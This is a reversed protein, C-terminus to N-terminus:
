SGKSITTISRIKGNFAKMAAVVKPHQEIKERLDEEALQIKKQELSQASEGLSQERSNAVDFSYGSGWYSDIFGQLKKRVQSDAMQEKLFVLKTPVGLRLCKENEQIFLLNEIKAAFLADAQRLRDVFMLWKESATASQIEGLKEPEAKTEITQQPSNNQIISNKKVGMKDLSAKMAELGSPIEKVQQAEQVKQSSQTLPAHSAYSTKAPSSQVNKVALSEASQISHPTKLQQLLNHIDTLRPASVMRLMVVELVLRPDQAKQIDNASKLAMDFLLHLEEESTLSALQQLVALESDPMELISSINEAAIKVMLLNRITELLNQAFLQPEFGSTATKEIIQVIAKTDRHIIAALTDFLLMHDTLGLIEVVKERTLEGNAFTVVQDLLSQSDRMSGDGQRAIIWLADQHAAIQDNQCILALRETIQKTSIRRFDFRQCRSLITQPIKHVETTCMIFIVHAPPEELTKLLANFASTSLMHVEDIIYVKYKGTSPMFAVGERLERIADVGNNSAGDIEIVDVSNGNAIETCSDCQNCPVFDVSNQCRLSKALIRASSTKGTGRPGTFLLAHPLRDNKLANGLTQTIHAQGVVDSFAQPRWKRAIVQYSM